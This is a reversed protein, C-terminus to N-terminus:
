WRWFSKGVPKPTAPKDVPPDIGHHLGEPDKSPPAPDNMKQAAHLGTEFFMSASYALLAAALLAPGAVQVARERPTNPLRREAHEWARPAFLALLLLVFPDFYRHWLQQSPLQSLTFGLMAALLITRDRRNCASLWAAACVAGWVSLLIVILSTRAQGTADHFLLPGKMGISWLVGRRGADFDATTAPLLSLLLGLGAAGLLVGKHCRWLSRLPRWLYGVFFVSYAGLMSLVLPAAASGAIRSLSAPPIQEAFRQPVLGGWYRVFLSLLGFAPVSLAIAGITRTIRTRPKALVSAPWPISANDEDGLWSSLWFLGATWIHVQRTLVLGCLVLMSAILTRSTLPRLALLIMAVVGLWGMNDPLLFAAPFLTYPSAIIPLSIAAVMAAPARRSADRALLWLLMGTILATAIQLPLTSDGFVKAITAMLVHYGPTTASLYDWTEFTPWTRTFDRIVPMHYLKQDFAARYPIRQSAIVAGVVVAYIGLLSWAGTPRQPPGHPAHPEVPTHTM